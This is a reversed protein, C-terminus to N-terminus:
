SPAECSQAKLKQRQNCRSCEGDDNWWTFHGCEMITPGLEVDAADPKYPCNKATHDDKEGCSRCIMVKKKTTIPKWNSDCRVEATSVEEEVITTEKKKSATPCTRRNHGPEGCNGCKRM